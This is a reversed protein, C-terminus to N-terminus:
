AFTHALLNDKGCPGWVDTAPPRRRSLPKWQLLRISVFMQCGTNPPRPFPPEPKEPNAKCACRAPFQAPLWSRVMAAADRWGRPGGVEPCSKPHLGQRSTVSPRSHCMSSGSHLQGGRARCSHRQCPRTVSASPVHATQAGSM